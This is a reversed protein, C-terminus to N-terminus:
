QDVAAIEDAEELSWKIYNYVAEPSSGCQVIGKLESVSAVNGGRKLLRSTWSVVNVRKLETQTWLCCGAVTPQLM